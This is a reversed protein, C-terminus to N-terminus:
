AASRTGWQNSAPAIAQIATTTDNFIRFVTDLGTQDILEAVPLSPQALILDGGADRALKLGRILAGLGASDASEVEALQMVVQPRAVVAAQVEDLLIQALSKNLAGAIALVMAYEVPQHTIRGPAGDAANM